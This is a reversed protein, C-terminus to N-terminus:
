VAIREMNQNMGARDISEHLTAFRAIQRGIDLLRSEINEHQINGQEDFVKYSSAISVQRPLVWAHLNRGITRLSNLANIAGSAGGAVGVLGIMKGEFERSSMLDLANKLVGSFSGHYEPTGLIIGQAQQVEQRLKFVDKPYEQEDILGQFVLKYERLDILKVDARSEAAGQLAVQLAARTYSGERLSGCIAIIKVPAKLFDQSRM